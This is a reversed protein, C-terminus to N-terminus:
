DRRYRVTDVMRLDFKLDIPIRSNRFYYSKRCLNVSYQKYEKYPQVLIQYSESNNRRPVLLIHTFLKIYERLATSITFSNNEKCFLIMQKSQIKLGMMAICESVTLLLCESMYVVALRRSIRCCVFLTLIRLLLFICLTFSVTMHKVVFGLFRGNKQRM